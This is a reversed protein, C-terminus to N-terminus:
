LEDMQVFDWFQILQVTSTNYDVDDNTIVIIQFSNDLKAFAGFERGYAKEEAVPYAAQIYYQKNGKDLRERKAFRIKRM